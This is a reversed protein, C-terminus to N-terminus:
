GGPNYLQRGPPCPRDGVQPRLGEHYQGPSSRRENDGEPVAAPSDVGPPAGAPLKASQGDSPRPPQGHILKAKTWLVTKIRTRKWSGSAFSSTKSRRSSPWPYSEMRIRTM